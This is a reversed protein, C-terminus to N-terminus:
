INKKKHKIYDPLKEKCLECSIDKTNYTITPQEDESNIEYGLDSEIKLNLWNKLCYYHIYKMSGKCICPCILPNKIPNDEECFCIRCIKGKQRRIQQYYSDMEYDKEKFEEKEVNTKFIKDEWKLKKLNKKSKRLKNLGFKKFLKRNKKINLSFSRHINAKEKKTKRLNFETLLNNDSSRNLINNHKENEKKNAIRNNLNNNDFSLKRKGKRKKFNNDNKNDDNNDNNSDSDSILNKRINNINDDKDREDEESKTNLKIHLIKLYIKGLKIIDGQNLVYYKQKEKLFNEITLGKYLLYVANQDILQTLDKAWDGCNVLYDSDTKEISVLDTVQADKMFNTDNSTNMSNENNKKKKFIVKNDCRSLQGSNEITMKQNICKKDKYNIVESNSKNWIKYKLILSTM